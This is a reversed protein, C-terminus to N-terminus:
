QDWVSCDVALAGYDTTCYLSEGIHWSPHPSFRSNEVKPPYGAEYVIVYFRLHDAFKARNGPGLVHCHKHVGHQLRRSGQLSLLVVNGCGTNKVHRQM